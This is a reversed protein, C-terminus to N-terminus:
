LASFDSVHNKKLIGLFCWHHAGDLHIDLIKFNKFDKRILTKNYIYHPIGKENGELPVYTRPAITRIKKGNKWNDETFVIFAIGDPKLVREIESICFRIDKIKAHFIVLISIVADFFNDEFPFRKYCSANKIKAKLGLENLWKRTARLGEKSVDTGYVDFNARALMVTHRGTGCGLDLVKKTKRKKMLKIISKMDEQPNFFFKGHKKFTNDWSEMVM